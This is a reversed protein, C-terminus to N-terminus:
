APATSTALSVRPASAMPSTQYPPVVWFGQFIPWPELPEEAPDAEAVEAPHMAKPMPVSVRPEMADGEVRQPTVPSRGVNPRTGRVPPMARVQDMSLIPGMQRATSSQARTMAAILPGSWLSAETWSMGHFQSAVRSGLDRRM